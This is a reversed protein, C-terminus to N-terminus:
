MGLIVREDIQTVPLSQCDLEEIIKICDPDGLLAMDLTEPIKKGYGKDTLRACRRISQRVFDTYEPMNDIIWNRISPENGQGHLIESRKRYGINLWKAKDHRVDATYVLRSGRMKIRYALLDKEDKSHFISEAAVTLDVLCDAIDERNIALDFRRIAVTLPSEDNTIHKLLYQAEAIHANTLEICSRTRRHLRAPWYRFGFGFPTEMINFVLGHIVSGLFIIDSKVALRLAQLDYNNPEVELEKSLSSYNLRRESIILAHDIGAPIMAGFPLFKQIYISRPPFKPGIRPPIIWSQDNLKYDEKPYIGQVFTITQVTVQGQILDEIATAIREVNIPNDFLDHYAAAAIINQILQFNLHDRDQAHMSISPPILDAIKYGVSSIEPNKGAERLLETPDDFGAWASRLSSPHWPIRALKEITQKAATCLESIISKISEHSM